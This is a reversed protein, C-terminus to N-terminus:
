LTRALFILLGKSIANTIMSQYTSLWRQLLYIAWCWIMLRALLEFCINEDALGYKLMHFIGTFVLVETEPCDVNCCTSCIAWCWIVVRWCRLFHWRSIARSMRGVKFIMRKQHSKPFQSVIFSYIIVDTGAQIDNEKSTIKFDLNPPFKLVM